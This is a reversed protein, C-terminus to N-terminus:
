EEGYICEMAYSYDDIDIIGKKLCRKIKDEVEQQTEGALLLDVVEKMAKKSILM